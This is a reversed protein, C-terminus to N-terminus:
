FTFSLQTQVRSDNAGGLGYTEHRGYLYEIGWQLYNTINYFCNAAIYAGYRYNDSGAVGNQDDAVAYDGVNWIRSYSGVVNFQLRSTANYSAGFVLGMMPNATMQGVHDDDPTFSLHRGSIDQIYNAIGEGYVAQFNFTLPKWFSFNGSLMAGWGLINRTSGSILDRYAFDRLLGSLRIRNQESAQYQIWLPVDPVLQTVEDTVKVGYYDHRYDKGRYFGNSSYFTPMELGVAFSFGDFSPSKYALQYATGAVDGCPGQPDITPPQAALGDSMLTATEGVTIGRWTVYARKLLATHSAGNMGIKVYGTVQNATGGLGVVTFDVFANLPNIFFAGKKGAQAPVPIDGTVFNSASGNSNYLDNGIDYGLIPNIKGGISLVFSNDRTRIAFKPTPISNPEVPRAKELIERVEPTVRVFEIAGSEFVVDDDESAVDQATVPVACVATLVALHYFRKIIM